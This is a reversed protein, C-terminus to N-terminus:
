KIITLEAFLNKYLDISADFHDQAHMLSAKLRQNEQLLGEIKDLM